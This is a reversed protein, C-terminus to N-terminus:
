VFKPVTKALEIEFFVYSNHLLQVFYNNYEGQYKQCQCRATGAFAAGGVVARHLGGDHFLPPLNKPM